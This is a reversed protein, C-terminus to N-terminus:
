RAPGGAGEDAGSAEPPLIVEEYWEALAIVFAQLKADPVHGVPAGSPKSIRRRGAPLPTAGPEAGSDADGGRKPHM